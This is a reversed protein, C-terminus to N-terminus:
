ELTYHTFHDSPSCHHISIYISPHISLCISQMKRELLVERSKSSASPPSQPAGFLPPKCIGCWCKCTHKRLQQKATKSHSRGHVPNAWNSIVQDLAIILVSYFTTAWPPPMNASTQNCICHLHTHLSQVGNSRLAHGPTSIWRHGVVTCGNIRATYGGTPHAKRMQLRLSCIHKRTLAGNLSDASLAYTTCLALTCINQAKTVAVM